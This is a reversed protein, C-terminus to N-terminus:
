ERWTALWAQFEEVTAASNLRSLNALEVAPDPDDDSVSFVLLFDAGFKAFVGQNRLNELAQVCTQYLQERFADFGPSDEIDLVHERIRTCIQQTERDAGQGEFHWEAPSFKYYAQDDPNEAQHRQLHSLTNSAICATMAGSDSYLAFGCLTEEPHAATMEVLALKAAAELDAQLAAFDFESM